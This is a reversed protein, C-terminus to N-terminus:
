WTVGVNALPPEVTRNCLFEVILKMANLCVTTESLTTKAGHALENRNKRAKNLENYIPASIEGISHLIETRVAVSYTRNDDLRKVRSKDEITSIYNKWLHDIVQECVIWSDILAESLQRQSFLSYAGAVLAPLDESVEVLFKACEQEMAKKALVDPYMRLTHWDNRFLMGLPNTTRELYMERGGGGNSILAHNNILRGYSIHVPTAPQSVIGLLALECIVRNFCVAAKEEFALKAQLDDILHGELDRYPDSMSSPPRVFLGGNRTLLIEHSEITTTEVIEIASDRNDLFIDSFLVHPYLYTGIVREAISDKGWAVDSFFLDFQSMRIIIGQM